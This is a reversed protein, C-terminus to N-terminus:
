APPIFILEHRRVVQRKGDILTGHETNPGILLSGFRWGAAVLM